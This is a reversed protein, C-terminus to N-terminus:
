RPLDDLYVFRPRPRARQVLWMVGLGLAAMLLWQDFLFPLAFGAARATWFGPVCWLAVVVAIGVVVGIWRARTEHRDRARQDIDRMLDRVQELAADHMDPNGCAACRGSSAQRAGCELCIWPETM